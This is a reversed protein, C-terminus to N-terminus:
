EDAMKPLLKVAEAVQALTAGEPLAIPGRDFNAGAVIQEGEPLRIMWSELRKPDAMTSAVVIDPELFYVDLPRRGWPMRWTLKEKGRGESVVLGEDSLRLAFRENIAVLRDLSIPTKERLRVDEPLQLSGSAGLSILEIGTTTRRGIVDEVLTPPGSPPLLVAFYGQKAGASRFTAVGPEFSVLRGLLPVAVSSVLKGKVLYILTQDVEWRSLLVSDKTSALWRVRGLRLAPEQAGHPTYRHDTVPGDWAEAYIRNRVPHDISPYGFLGSAKAILAGVVAILAGGIVLNRRRM